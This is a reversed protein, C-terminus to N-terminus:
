ALLSWWVRGENFLYSINVYNHLHLNIKLVNVM